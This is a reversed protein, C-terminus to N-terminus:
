QNSSIDSVTVDENIAAVVPPVGITDMGGAGIDADSLQLSIKYNDVAGAPIHSNGGEANNTLDVSFTIM